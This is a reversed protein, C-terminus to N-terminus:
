DLVEGTDAGYTAVEPGTRFTQGQQLESLTITREVTVTTDVLLPALEGPNDYGLYGPANWFDEFYGPDKDMINYLSFPSAPWAQQMQNTAQRPWGMRMMLSLADRQRANLGAHIDGSGGVEAADIIGPIKHGALAGVLGYISWNPRQNVGFAQPVAGDIIDGANELHVASRLGGGSCGNVYGFKPWEGYMKAAVERAYRTGHASARWLVMDTDVGLGENPWNGDNTEVLYAGMEDFALNFVWAWPANVGTMALGEPHTMMKDLGGQGGELMLLFRERYLEEPPLYISFRLHTGELGGHVYRHRRPEDRWDDVDIFPKSDAFAPDRYIVAVKPDGPGADKACGGALSLLTVAAAAACLTPGRLWCLRATGGFDRCLSQRTKMM